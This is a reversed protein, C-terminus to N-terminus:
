KHLLIIIVFVIENCFLKILSITLFAFTSNNANVEIQKYSHVKNSKPHYQFDVSTYSVFRHM